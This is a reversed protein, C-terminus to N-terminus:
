AAAKRRIEDDVQQAMRKLFRARPDPAINFTAGVFRPLLPVISTPEGGKSVFGEGFLREYILVRATWELLNNETINGLAVVMAAVGLNFKLAHDKETLEHKVKTVDVILM